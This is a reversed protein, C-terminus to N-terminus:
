QSVLSIYVTDKGGSWGRIEGTGAGTGWSWRTNDATASERCVCTIKRLVM